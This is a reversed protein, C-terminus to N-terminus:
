KRVLSVKPNPEVGPLEYYELGAAELSETIRAHLGSEYTFKDGYHVFLCVDSIKKIEEGCLKDADKQLIFKTPSVFEFSDM